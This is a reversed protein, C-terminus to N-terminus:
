SYTSAALATVAAIVQQWVESPLDHGMGEILLLRAGAILEATREGGSPAVLVDATGHVVLTPVHLHVLEPERSGSAVIAEFQRASAGPTFSRAHAAAFYSRVGEEDFWQPSAWVRRGAVDHEVALAPDLVPPRLLTTLATESPQGVDHSGTSSSISTLSAVRDPHEIAVTQAIMGGLSHGVVHAQVVGADDLVAIVDAAMDSLTYPGLGDCITSLGTDRNDLRIVFFGRDVFGLCLEEPWFVLQNGLGAVLVLAPDDSAGFTEYCIEVAGNRAFPM